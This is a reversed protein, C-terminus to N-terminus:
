VNSEVPPVAFSSAAQPASTSREPNFFVASFLAAQFLGDGFQGLLRVRLLRRFDPVSVVDRLAATDQTV